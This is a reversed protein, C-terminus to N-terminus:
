NTGVGITPEIMSHTPSTSLVKATLRDNMTKTVVNLLTDHVNISESSLKHLFSSSSSLTHAFMTPSLSTMSLIISVSAELINETISSTIAVTPQTSINIEVTVLPFDNNVTILTESITSPPSDVSDRIRLNTPGSERQEYLVLREGDTRDTHVGFIDGEQFQLPTQPIFEYLNTGIMTNANVLSSGIKNYNNPGLQRWIQLESQIATTGNNNAGFIWKTVSGNCSFVIWPYIYQSRRYFPSHDKYKLHKRKLLHLM